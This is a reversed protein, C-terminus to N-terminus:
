ENFREEKNKVENLYDSAIIVQVFEILPVSPHVKSLAELFDSKFMRVTEDRNSVYNKAM